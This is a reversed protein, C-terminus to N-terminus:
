STHVLNTLRLSSRLALEYLHLLIEYIM